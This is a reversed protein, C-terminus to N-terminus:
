KVRTALRYIDIPQKAQDAIAEERQRLIERLAWDVWSSVTIKPEHRDVDEKILAYLEESCYLHCQKSKAM